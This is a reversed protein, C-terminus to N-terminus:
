ISLVVYELLILVLFDYTEGVDFFFDVELFVVLFDDEDFFFDVALFVLLFDDVEDFFFDVVLFVVLFDDVEDFFFDVVLFDDEDAFLM